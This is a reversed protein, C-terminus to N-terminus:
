EPSRPTGTNIPEPPTTGGGASNPAGGARATPTARVSNPDASSPDASGEDTSGVGGTGANTSEDGLRGLPEERDPIASPPLDSRQGQKESAAPPPGNTLGANTGSTRDCGALLAASVALFPVVLPRLRM